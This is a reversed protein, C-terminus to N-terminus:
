KPIVKLSPGRRLNRRADALQRLDLWLQFGFWVTAAIAVILCAIAGALALDQHRNVLNPAWIRLLVFDVVLLVVLKLGIKLGFRRVLGAEAVTSPQFKPESVILGLQASPIADRDPTPLRM